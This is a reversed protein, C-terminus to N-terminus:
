WKMSHLHGFYYCTKVTVIQGVNVIVLLYGVVCHCKFYSHLIMLKKKIM